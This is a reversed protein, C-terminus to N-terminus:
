FSLQEFHIDKAAVGLDHLSGEVAQIMGQPGCLYYSTYPGTYGILLKTDVTGQYALDTDDGNELVIQQKFNSMSTELRSIEEQLVMQDMDRNAYILRIRRPDSNDALDQLLSLMPGIGAGGAILM